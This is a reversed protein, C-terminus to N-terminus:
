RNRTWAFRVTWFFFVTYVLIQVATKVASTLVAQHQAPESVSRLALPVTLSFLLAAGLSWVALLLAVAGVARRATTANLASAGALALGLGMVPVPLNNFMASATGFEWEANGIRPPVWALVLDTLGVLLFVVGVAGLAVWAVSHREAENPKGRPGIITTAM